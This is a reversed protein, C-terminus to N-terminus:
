KLPGGSADWWSALLMYHTVWQHGVDQSSIQAFNRRSEKYRPRSDENSDINSVDATRSVTCTPRRLRWALLFSWLRNITDLASTACVSASPALPIVLTSWPWAFYRIHSPSSRSCRGHLHRIYTTSPSDLSGRFSRRVAVCWNVGAITSVLIMITFVVVVAIGIIGVNVSWSTRSLDGHLSGHLLHGEWRSCRSPKSRTRESWRPFSYTFSRALACVSTRGGRQRNGQGGSVVQGLM